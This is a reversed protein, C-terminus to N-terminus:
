GAREGARLGRLLQAQAEAGSVEAGSRELRRALELHIGNTTAAGRRTAGVLYGLELAAHPERSSRAELQEAVTTALEGFTQLDADSTAREVCESLLTGDSLAVHGPAARLAREIASSGSACAPPIPADNSGCATASAAICALSLWRARM